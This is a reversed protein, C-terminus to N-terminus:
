SKTWTLGDTTTYTGPTGYEADTNYFKSYLDGPFATSKFFEKYITGQFTVSKLKACGKFADGYINTVSVPITVGTLSTCDQFASSGIAEVGNPITVSSLNGCGKFAFMEISTISNPLTVGILNACEVFAAPDIRILTSGSIDLNVYRPVSYSLAYGVSRKTESGGGLDSVILKVTYPNDLDDNVSQASLWTRLVDASTINIILNTCGDFVYEGISTVKNGITVSTLGTCWRFVGDGISIVTNPITMGTLGTCGSFVYEGISTVSNPITVSELSTCNAFTKEELITVNNSITISELGTCSNFASNGITTVNDPITVGTLGTCGQFARIGISKVKSGITVDTLNTCSSFALQGISIVSNPIIISELNDVKYFAQDGISTVTNPLTIGALMGCEYFAWDDVGTFTSESFDLHVFKQEDGNLASGVSGITSPSGGLSSVNVKVTYIDTLDNEPQSDLWEKLAAGSTFTNTVNVTIAGSTKSKYGAASVTVTYKGATTPIFKNTNDGVNTSGKKWQYKVTESSRSYTATLETGINVNGSPSIIITGPLEPDELLDCAAMSFGIVAAATIIGAIKFIAKINLINKM